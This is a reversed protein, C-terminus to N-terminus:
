FSINWRTKKQNSFSLLFVKFLRTYSPNLHFFHWKVRGLNPPLSYFPRVTIMCSQICELCLIFFRFYDVSNLTKLFINAGIPGLDCISLFQNSIILPVLLYFFSLSKLFYIFRWAYPFVLLMFGFTSWRSFHDLFCRFDGIHCWHCKM